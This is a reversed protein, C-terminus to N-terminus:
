LLIVTVDLSFAPFSLGADGECYGVAGPPTWFRYETDSIKQALLDTSGSFGESDFRLGKGSVNNGSTFVCATRVNVTGVARLPNEWSDPRLKINVLEHPQGDIWATASRGDGCREADDRSIKAADPNMFAIEGGWAYVGCDQDIYDGLGDSQLSVGFADHIRMTIPPRSNAGLGGKAFAADPASPGSPLPDCGIAAALISFAAVGASMRASM